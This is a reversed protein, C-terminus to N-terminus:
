FRKGISLGLKIHTQPNDGIEDKNDLYRGAGIFTEYTYGNRTVWKKGLTAGLSFRFVTSDDNSGIFLDDFEFNKVSAFSSFLEVFTGQAGFDQRNLFYLRYFPSFAFRRNVGIESDDLATLVGFGFSSNENVIKEYYGHLGPVFLIDTVVLKIERDGLIEPSEFSSNKVIEVKFIKEEEKTESASPIEPVAPVEQEQGNMAALMFFIPIFFLLRKMKKPKLHICFYLITDQSQIKALM